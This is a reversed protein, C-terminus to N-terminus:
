RYLENKTFGKQCSRLPFMSLDVRQARRTRISCFPTKTRTLESKSATTEKSPWLAIQIMSLPRADSKSLKVAWKQDKVWANSGYLTLKKLQHRQDWQLIVGIQIKKNKKTINTKCMSSWVWSLMKLRGERFTWRISQGQFWRTYLQM